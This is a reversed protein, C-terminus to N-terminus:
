ILDYEESSSFTALHGGLLSSYDQAEQWNLSDESKFFMTSDSMGLLELPEQEVATLYPSVDNCEQGVATLCSAALLLTFIRNM